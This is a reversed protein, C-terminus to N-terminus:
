DSSGGDGDSGEGGFGWGSGGDGGGDQGRSRRRAAQWAELEAAERRSQERAEAFWDRGRALVPDPLLPPIAPGSRSRM